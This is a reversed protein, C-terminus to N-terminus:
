AAFFSRTRGSPAAINGLMYGQETVFDVATQDLAAAPLSLALLMTLSLLASLFKKM